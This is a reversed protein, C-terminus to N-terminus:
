LNPISVSQGDSKNGLHSLVKLDIDFGLPHVSGDLFVANFTGSHSSGFREEGDPEDVHDEAPALKTSRVTDEDWGATYGENDDEQWEGLM